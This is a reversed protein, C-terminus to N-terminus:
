QLHPSPGNFSMDPEHNAEDQVWATFDALSMFCYYDCYRLEQKEAKSVLIVGNAAQPATRLADRRRLCTGWHVLTAALLMTRHWPMRVTSGHTPWPCCFIGSDDHISRELAVHGTGKPHKLAPARLTASPM